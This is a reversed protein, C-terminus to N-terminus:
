QLDHHRCLPFSYQFMVYGGNRVLAGYTGFNSRLEAVGHSL